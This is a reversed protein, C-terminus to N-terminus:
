VQSKFKCCGRNGAPERLSIILSPRQFSLLSITRGIDAVEEDTERCGINWDMKRAMENAKTIAWNALLTGSPREHVM